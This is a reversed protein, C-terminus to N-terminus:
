VNCKYLNKFSIEAVKMKERSTMEKSFVAPTSTVKEVIETVDSETYTGEPSATEKGTLKPSSGTVAEKPSSQYKNEGTVAENPSPPYKNEGTVAENPSPPYKNEGTVAEKPSSPYKNEGTVAEKPSSPYKNEGTVAEKPSSPYKSAEKPSSPYKSDGTVAEKPSPPYKSAGEWVTSDTETQLNKKQGPTQKHPKNSTDGSVDPDISRRSRKKKETEIKESKKILWHPFQGSRSLVIENREKDLMFGDPLNEKSYNWDAKLVDNFIQTTAWEKAIDKEEIKKLLINIDTQTTLIWETSYPLNMKNILEKNVSFGMHVRVRKEEDNNSNTECFGKPLSFLVSSKVCIESMVQEMRNNGINTPKETRGVKVLIWENGNALTPIEIEHLKVGYVSALSNINEKMFINTKENRKAHNNVEDVFKDAFSDNQMLDYFGPWTAPPKQPFSEMKMGSICRGRIIVYLAVPPDQECIVLINAQYLIILAPKIQMVLEKVAEESWKEFVPLQKLCSLVLRRQTRNVDMHDSTPLYRKSVFYDILDVDIKQLLRRAANVELIAFQCKTITQVRATCPCDFLVSIEGFFDGEHLTALVHGMRQCFMRVAM